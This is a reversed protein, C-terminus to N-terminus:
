KPKGEPIGEIHPKGNQLPTRKGTASRVADIFSIVTYILMLIVSILVGISFASYPIMLCPTTSKAQTPILEIAGIILIVLLVLVLSQDVVQIITQMRPSCHEYVLQIAVHGQKKQVIAAGLFVMWVFFLTSIEEAWDIPWHFIYRSCVNSFLLLVLGALLAALSYYIIRDVIRLLTKM